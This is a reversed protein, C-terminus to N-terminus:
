PTEVTVFTDPAVRVYETHGELTSVCQGSGVDWLRATKDWSGATALTRGDPSFCVSNVQHSHRQTLRM